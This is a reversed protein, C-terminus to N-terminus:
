GSGDLEHRLRHPEGAEEEGQLPRAAADGDDDVLIPAGGPDDRDLVDDLLDQALYFVLVVVPDGSAGSGSDHGAGEMAVLHLVQCSEAPRFAGVLRQASEDGGPEVPERADSVDEFHTAVPDFHGTDASPHRCPQSYDLRPRGLFSRPRPCRWRAAATPS